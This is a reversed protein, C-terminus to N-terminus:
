YQKMWNSCVGYFKSECLKFTRAWVSTKFSLFKCKGCLTAFSLDSYTVKEPFTLNIISTKFTPIKIDKRSEEFPVWSYSFTFYYNQVLFANKPSPKM